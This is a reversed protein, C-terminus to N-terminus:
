ILHNYRKLWRQLSESRSVTSSLYPNLRLITSSSKVTLHFSVSPAWLTAHISHTEEVHVHDLATSHRQQPLFNMRPGWLDQSLPALWLQKDKWFFFALCTHGTYSVFMIVHAKSRQARSSLLGKDKWMVLWYPQITENWCRFNVMIGSHNDRQERTVIPIQFTFGMWVTRLTKIPLASLFAKYSHETLLRLCFTNM